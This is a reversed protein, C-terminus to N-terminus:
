VNRLVPQWLGSAPSSGRPSLTRNETSGGRDHARCGGMWCRHQSQLRERGQRGGSSMGTCIVSPNDEADMEERLLGERPGLTSVKPVGAHTRKGDGDWVTPDLRGPPQRSLGTEKGCHPPKTEAAGSGPRGRGGQTETPVQGKFSKIQPKLTYGTGNFALM